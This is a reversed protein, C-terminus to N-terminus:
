NLGDASVTDWANGDDSADWEDWAAAYSDLYARDRMLRIAAQVAASRSPFLGERAQADVFAVDEEPLSLSIKM